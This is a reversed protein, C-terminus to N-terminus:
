KLGFTKGLESIEIGDSHLAIGMPHKENRERCRTEFSVYYLKGKIKNFNWISMHDTSPVYITFRISGNEFPFDRALVRPCSNFPITWKTKVYENNFLVNTGKRPLFSLIVGIIDYSLEEWENVLARKVMNRSFPVPVLYDAYGTREVM